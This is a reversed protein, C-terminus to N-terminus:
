RKTIYFSKHMKRRIYLSRINILIFIVTLVLTSKIAWIFIIKALENM